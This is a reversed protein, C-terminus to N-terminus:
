KDRKILMFLIDTVENDKTKCDVEISFNLNKEQCDVAIYNCKSSVVNFKWENLKLKLPKAFIKNFSHITDRHFLSFTLPKNLNMTYQGKVPEEVQANQRKAMEYALDKVLKELNNLGSGTSSLISEYLSIM